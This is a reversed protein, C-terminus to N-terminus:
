EVASRVRAEAGIGDEPPHAWGLLARGEEGGFRRHLAAMACFKPM